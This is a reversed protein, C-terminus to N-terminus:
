VARVGITRVRANFIRSQRQLERNRRREIAASEKMDVPLDLKYMKDRTKFIEVVNIQCRATDLAFQTSPRREYDTRKSQLTALSVVNLRYHM